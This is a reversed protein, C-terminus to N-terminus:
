HGLRPYPFLIDDDESEHLPAERQSHPCTHQNHGPIMDTDLDQTTFYIDDDESEHLPAERQSHPCTHQNHGPIKCVTPTLYYADSEDSRFVMSSNWTTDGDRNRDYFGDKAGADHTVKWEKGRGGRKCVTFISVTLTKSCGVVVFDAAKNIFYRCKMFLEKTLYKAVSKEISPYKTQLVPDGHLSAFDDEKEKFRIHEQTCLSLWSQTYDRVDLHQPLVQLFIVGSILQLWMSRKESLANVWHNDELHYKSVMEDWAQSFEDLDYDGLM